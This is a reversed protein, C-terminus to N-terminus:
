AQEVAATAVDEPVEVAGVAISHWEVCTRQSHDLNHVGALQLLSGRLSRSQSARTSSASTCTRCGVSSRPRAWRVLLLEAPRHPRAAHARKVPVSEAVAARAVAREVLAEPEELDM